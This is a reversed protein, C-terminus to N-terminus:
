NEKVGERDGSSQIRKGNEPQRVPTAERSPGDLLAEQLTSFAMQEYEETLEKRIQERKDFSEISEIKSRAFIISATRVSDDSQIINALDNSVVKMRETKQKEQETKQKELEIEANKENEDLIEKHKLYRRYFQYMLLGLALIILVPIPLNGWSVAKM